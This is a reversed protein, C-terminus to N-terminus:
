IWAKWKGQKGGRRKSGKENIKIAGSDLLFKATKHAGSARAYDLLWHADGAYLRGLVLKRQTPWPTPGLWLSLPWVCDSRVLGRLIRYRRKEPVQDVLNSHYQEYYSKNVWVLDVPRIWGNVLDWVLNGESM